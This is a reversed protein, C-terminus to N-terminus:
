TGSVRQKEAEQQQLFLAENKAREAKDAEHWERYVSLPPRLIWISVFLAVFFPIMKYKQPVDAPLLPIFILGIALLFM